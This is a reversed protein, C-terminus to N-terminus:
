THAKGPPKLPSHLGYNVGVRACERVCVCVCVGRVGLAINEFREKHRQTRRVRWKPWHLSSIHIHPVCHGQCETHTHTQPLIPTSSPRCQSHVLVGM